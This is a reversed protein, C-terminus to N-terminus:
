KDKRRRYALGGAAVAGGALALMTLPEPSNVPNPVGTQQTPAMQAVACVAFIGVALAVPLIRKIMPFVFDQIRPIPGRAWNYQKFDSGGRIRPDHGSAM